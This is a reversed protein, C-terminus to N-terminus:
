DGETEEEYCDQAKRAAEEFGHATLWSEEFAYQWARGPYAWFGAAAKDMDAGMTQATEVSIGYFKANAQSM